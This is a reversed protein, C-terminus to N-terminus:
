VKKENHVTMRQHKALLHFATNLKSPEYKVIRFTDEVNIRKLRTWPLLLMDDMM